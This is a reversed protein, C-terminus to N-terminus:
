GIVPGRGTVSISTIPRSGAKFGGRSDVMNAFSVGVAIATMPAEWLAM